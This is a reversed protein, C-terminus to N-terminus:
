KRALKEKASHSSITQLLCFSILSVYFIAARIKVLSAGSGSARHIIFLFTYKVLEEYSNSNNNISNKKDLEVFAVFLRLSNANNM